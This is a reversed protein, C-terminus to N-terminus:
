YRAFLVDQRGSEIVRLNGSHLIGNTINRESAERRGFEDVEYQFLEAPCLVPACPRPLIGKAPSLKGM